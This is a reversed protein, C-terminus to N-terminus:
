AGYQVAAEPRILKGGYVHLARVIDAFKTTSRLAEVKDIQNVFSVASRHYAVAAPGPGAAPVLMPSEVVTFGLLRGIVADRLGNSDGSVQVSTLKSNAGLLLGAFDPTVALFRDGQPVKNKSLATRFDKILNFADDGSAPAAYVAGITFAVSAAASATANNNLTASNTFSNVSVIKSSAAIGTGTVAKGIDALTFRASASTIVPSGTTTSGDAATVRQGIANASLLKNGIFTEGDEVLANASDRMVPEFSGAAQVRDVDDVNFALAKEQDILLDVQADVLDEPSITRGNAKYDVVQPTRVSSVHVTNGKSAEGEYDRNVTAGLVESAAFRVLLESSWIAPIFKSIAM